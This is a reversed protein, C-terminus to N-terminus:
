LQLAKVSLVAPTVRKARKNKMKSTGKLAPSAHTLERALARRVLAIM